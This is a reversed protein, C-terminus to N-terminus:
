ELKNQFSFFFYIFIFSLKKQCFFKFQFFHEENVKEVNM